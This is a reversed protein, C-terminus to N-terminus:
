SVVHKRLIAVNHLYYKNKLLRRFLNSLILGILNVILRLFLRIINWFMQVVKNEFIYLALLSDLIVCIVEIENGTKEINVVELSSKESIYQILYPTIRQYDYPEEHLFWLFPCTLIIKGNPKLIRTFEQFAKYLDPIHELVDTLLIIDVSQDALQIAEASCIIDVTNSRNQIIDIGIYVAERSEVRDRLPQEGCGIDAVILGSALYKELNLHVFSELHKNTFYGLKYLRTKYDQRRNLVSHQQSASDHQESVTPTM